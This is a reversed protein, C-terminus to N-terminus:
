LLMSVLMILSSAMAVTNTAAGSASEFSVPTDFVSSSAKGGDFSVCKRNSYATSDASAGSCDTTNYDYQVVEGNESVFQDSTGEEEDVNCYNLAFGVM